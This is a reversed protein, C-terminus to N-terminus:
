SRTESCIICFVGLALKAQFGPSFFWHTELKQDIFNSPFL